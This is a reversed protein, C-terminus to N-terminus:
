KKKIEILTITTVTIVIVITITITITIAVTINIRNDFNQNYHSVIWTDIKSQNIKVLHLSIFAAIINNISSM